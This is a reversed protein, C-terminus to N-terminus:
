LDSYIFLCYKNYYQDQHIFYLLILFLIGLYLNEATHQNVDTKPTSDTSLLSEKPSVM